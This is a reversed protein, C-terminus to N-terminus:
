IEKYTHTYKRKEYWRKADFHADYNFKSGNWRTLTVGNKICVRTEAIATRHQCKPIYIYEIHCAVGICISRSKKKAQSPNRFQKSRPHLSEYKSNPLYIESFCIICIIIMIQMMLISKTHAVFIWKWMGYLVFRHYWAVILSLPFIFHYFFSIIFTKDQLNPQNMHKEGDNRRDNIKEIQWLFHWLSLNLFRYLLFQSQVVCIIHFFACVFFTQLKQNRQFFLLSGHFVIVHLHVCLYFCFTSISHYNENSLNWAASMM